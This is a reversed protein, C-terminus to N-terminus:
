QSTYRLLVLFIYPPVLNQGYSISHITPNNDNALKKTYGNALLFHAGIFLKFYITCYEMCFLFNSNQPWPSKTTEGISLLSILYIAFLRKSRIHKELFFFIETRECKIQSASKSSLNALICYDAILLRLFQMSNLCM